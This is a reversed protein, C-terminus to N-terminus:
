VTAPEVLSFDPNFFEHIIKKANGFKELFGRVTRWPAASIEWWAYFTTCPLERKPTRRTFNLYVVSDNYNAGSRANESGWYVPRLNASLYGPDVM